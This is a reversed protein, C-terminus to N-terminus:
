YRTVTRADLEFSILILDGPSPSSGTYVCVCVCVSVCGYKIRSEQKMAWTNSSVTKTPLSKVNNNNDDDDLVRTQQPREDTVQDPEVVAACDSRSRPPASHADGSRRRRSLQYCNLRPPVPPLSVQYLVAITAWDTSSTESCQASAGTVCLLGQYKRKRVLARLLGAM